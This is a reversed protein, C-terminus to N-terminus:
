SLRLQQTVKKYSMNSFLTNWDKQINKVLMYNTKVISLKELSTLDEKDIILSLQNNDFDNYKKRFDIYQILTKLGSVGFALQSLIEHTLLLTINEIEAACKEQLDFQNGRFDEYLSAYEFEIEEIKLKVSDIAELLSKVKNM